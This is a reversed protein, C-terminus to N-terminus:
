SITGEAKRIAIPLRWPYSRANSEFRSQHDLYLSEAFTIAVDRKLKTDGARYVEPMGGTGIFATM